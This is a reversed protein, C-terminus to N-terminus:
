NKLLFRTSRRRWYKYLEGGWLVLSSLLIIILFESLSLPEFGFKEAVGGVFLAIIILIISVTLGGVIFKNSFFGIKFISQNLSRMNLVNFLQTIAMVAFAGARAKELSDQLLFTKFIFITLVTMIMVMLVLFPFIDKSLINEEKKRPPKKLVDEHSPECALAVDAFGDTVLNMFIITAPLIILLTQGWLYAGIILSTVLTAIEAFNTTILFLSVQKVNTFVTRGEEIANVISTFNDDALVMSSSERAVDTGIQGMAIGIDAKKLAPADNVGDGTMAVIYGQKQLSELIKLKMAPTLRAFISVHKVAENFEKETLKELEKETLALPYNNEKENKVLGIERAIAIATEKHDGTKMIVRIGATKTKAIAEKVEPRPPDEMGVAGVFVLNKILDPTLKETEFPVTKYALGIVRLGNKALGEVKNLIEKKEKLALKKEKEGFGSSSIELIAEPAGVVYIEKETTDKTLIAPSSSNIRKKIKAEQPLEILSAGYKLEPNFPLDDIIKEKELLVEKKLGAKEALVVLAAETPDGIIRYNEKKGNEKLLRANNCICAIHLLKRLQPNELPFFVKEKQIFEGKPKWGGGSVTIEEQNLLIIKEADMTNQTITGTKDVAIINAVGLTETAQLNRVIANRKAMRHAGMALVIVLVIPLGEPIASVLAAVAFRFADKFEFHGIFLAVLLLASVCGFAIGAMQKALLDTKIKFHTKPTEIKELSEAIQGLATKPGTAVVIAKAQGATVFTGLWIMNKQDALPTKKPLEELNKDVPVSEGTLAAEMTRFNKLESLRADAPIRDGEGLLIIDGQVLEKAPIKLLEGERIVKAFPVVMKKLARIAKEAKSEQIFGMLANLLLVASIIYVDFMHRTWFSFLAAGILIYILWSHFQKLFIFAPHLARKEPIENFGFKQWRNKVEESTLGEPYSSLEELTKEISKSHFSNM